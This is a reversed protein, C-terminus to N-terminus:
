RNCNKAILDMLNGAIDQRTECRSEVEKHSNVLYARHRDRDIENQNNAVVLDAGSEIMSAYARGVLEDRSLGAELKFGILFAHPWLTRIQKIVKATKRLTITLTDKISAIKGESQKEPAYDLVAMAHVIADFSKGKLKDQITTLLDDITEIEILTLRPAYDKGLLAIDPISSGTGYVFTVFADRKLAETAITAGLKGTSKNSIYRVADIYGRTPGSTILINKSELNGM